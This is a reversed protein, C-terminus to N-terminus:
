LNWNFADPDNGAAVWKQFAIEKDRSDAEQPQQQQPRDKQANMKISLQLFQKRLKAASLINTKWFPDTTAFDIVDKVQRKTAGDIEVLKRFDDAYRQLNARAILHEVGAEKAVVKIREHFYVAMKYYTNNEDYKPKKNTKKPKEKPKSPALQEQKGWKTYDKQFALIRAGKDDLGEVKIINMEILRKLERDVQSRHADILDALYNISMGYKTQKRSFGYTFRWIALVLRFQTGNLNQKMIQELIENAIRTHGRELQPSAM